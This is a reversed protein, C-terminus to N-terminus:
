EMFVYGDEDSFMDEELYELPLYRRPRTIGLPTTLTAWIRRGIRKREKKLYALQEYKLQKEYGVLKGPVPALEQHTGFINARKHQMASKVIANYAEARSGEAWYYQLLQASSLPDVTIGAGKDPECLRHYSYTRALGENGRIRYCEIFNVLKESLVTDLEHGHHLHLLVDVPTTFAYLAAHVSFVPDILVLEKELFMSVLNDCGENSQELASVNNLHYCIPCFYVQHKSLSGKQARKVTKVMPTTRCFAMIEPTYIGLRICLLLISPWNEPQPAM